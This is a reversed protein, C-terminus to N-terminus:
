TQIAAKSQRYVTKNQRILRIKALKLAFLLNRPNSWMWYLLGFAKKADEKNTIRKTM